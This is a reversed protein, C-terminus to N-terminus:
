KTYNNFNITVTSNPFYMGPFPNNRSINNAINSVNINNTTNKVELDKTQNQKTSPLTSNEKEIQALNEVLNVDPIPDNELDFDLWDTQQNNSPQLPSKSVIDTTM